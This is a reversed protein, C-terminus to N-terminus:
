KGEGYVEKQAKWMPCHDTHYKHHLIKGITSDPNNRGHRCLPCHHCVKARLRKFITISEEGADVGKSIGEKELTEM